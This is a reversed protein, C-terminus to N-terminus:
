RSNEIAKKKKQVDFCKIAKHSLYVLYHRKIALVGMDAVLWVTFLCIVNEFYSKRERRHMRLVHLHYTESSTFDAIAINGALIYWM